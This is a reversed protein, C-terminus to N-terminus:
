PKPAIYLYRTSFERFRDYSMTSDISERYAQEYLMMTGEAEFEQRMQSVVQRKLKMHEYHSRTVDYAEYRIGLAHFAKALDSQDPAMKDLPEEDSFRFEGYFAALRGKPKLWRCYDTVERELDGGFFITDVSLIVDFAESDYQRSGIGGVDFTLRASKSATRRRALGIAVPSIDFGHGIAGTTDAIYEIMKGNGCGIDLVRDGPAIKLIDLMADIQRIDCFGQQSFDRGFVTTCYRAYAQSTDVAVYFDNYWDKDCM